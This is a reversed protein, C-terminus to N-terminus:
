KKDTAISQPKENKLIDNLDQPILGLREVIREIIKLDGNCDIYIAGILSEFIDALFKILSENSDKVNSLKRLESIGNTLQLCNHDVFNYFKLRHTHYSLNKNCTIASKITTLEGPGFSVNNQQKYVISVIAFDLVADGLYELRQYNLVSNASQHMLALTLFMEDKFTYNFSNEIFLKDKKSYKPTLLVDKFEAFDNNPGNKRSSNSSKLNTNSNAKENFDHLVLNILDKSYNTPFDIMKEDIINIKYNEKSIFLESEQEFNEKEKESNNNTSLKKLLNADIAACNDITPAQPWNGFTKLFLIGQKVGGTLYFAGLVAEVLDAVTKANYKLSKVRQFQVMAENSDIKLNKGNENVENIDLSNNIESNFICQIHKANLSNLQNFHFNEFKDATTKFVDANWISLGNKLKEVCLGPPYFNVFENHLPIARLFQVFNNKKAIKCLSNNTIFKTRESTLFGEHKNPYIKFLRISIAFKLFSDGLM